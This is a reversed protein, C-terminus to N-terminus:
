AEGQSSFEDNNIWVDLFRWPIPDSTSIEIAADAADGLQTWYVRRRFEGIKGAGAQFENSWTHGGDTSMRLMVLPDSGQGIPLGLGSEILLEIQDYPLRAHERTIGPAVRLRRIGTAGDFETAFARDMQAIKGTARDGVFHKGFAECHVRPAWIDYSGKVPNWMGREAWSAKELDFTWTGGNTPFGFNVFTHGEDQYVMVEADDIRGTRKYQALATEVAYTSIPQPVYGRAAMVKGSGEDNQGLWVINTGALGRAFPAAIGSRYVSGPIPQFPNNAVGTNYYVDGTVSGIFWLQRNGDVFMTRWPDPQTSRVFKQLPDWTSGDNPNSLRAQGIAISFAIFYSDLEAGMDADGTLVQTFAHTSLNYLYGNGGSTVFLQGPIGNYSITAPNSNQAVTGREISSYDSFFELFKTGEVGFMQGPVISSLARCGVQSLAWKPSFGPTPYLVKQLQKGAGDDAPIEEVYLNVTRALSAIISQSQGSGGCFGPWKAM